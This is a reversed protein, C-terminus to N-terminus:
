HICVTLTSAIRRRPQYNQMVKTCSLKGALFQVFTARHCAHRGRVHHFICLGGPDNLHLCRLALTALLPCRIHLGSSQTVTRAMLQTSFM